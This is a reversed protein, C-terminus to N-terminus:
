SRRGFRHQATKGFNGRRVNEKKTKGFRSAVDRSSEISIKGVVVNMELILNLSVKNRDLVTAASGTSNSNVTPTVSATNVHSPSLSNLTPPKEEEM